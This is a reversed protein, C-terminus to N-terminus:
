FIDEECSASVQPWSIHPNLYKRNQSLAPALLHLTQRGRTMGVYMVRHLEERDPSLSAQYSIDPALIVHNAEGGKVSHITGVIIKPKDHYGGPYNELIKLYYGYSDASKKNLNDKLWKVGGAMAERGRDGMVDYIQASTLSVDQPLERLLGRAQKGFVGKTLSEWLLIDGATWDGKAFANFRTIAMTNAKKGAPQYLPNWAASRRRFPNHFPIGEAKLARIFDALMYNCTTLVMASGDGYRVLDTALEVLAGTEYDIDHVQVAGTEATPLYTFDQRSTNRRIMESAARHVEGPVRWSQSLVRYDKGTTDLISPNAGKFGFISQDPDGVLFYQDTSEGWFHVLDAELPTCDQAEDVFLIRCDPRLGQRLPLEIMDMYDIGDEEEKFRRWAGYALRVDHPWLHEPRKIARWYSIEALAKSSINLDDVEVSGKTTFYKGWQPNLEIFKKIGASDELMLPRGLLRYGISHLTGVNEDPIPLDRHILERVAARTYSCAVIDEPDYKDCARQIQRKLYSTKGTGPPGVIIKLNDM